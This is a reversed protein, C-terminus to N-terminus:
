RETKNMVTQRGTLSGALHSLPGLPECVSAAVVAWLPADEATLDNMTAFDRNARMECLAEAVLMSTWLVTTPWGGLLSIMTGPLRGMWASQQHVLRAVSWITQTTTLSRGLRGAERVSSHWDAQAAAWTKTQTIRQRLSSPGDAVDVTPVVEVPIAALHLAQGMVLDDILPQEPFSWNTIFDIEFFEGHGVIYGFRPRSSKRFKDNSHLQRPIEVQLQRATHHLSFAKAWPNDSRPARYVSFAQMVRPRSRTAVHAATKLLDRQPRSDADLVLAYTLDAAPMRDLIPHLHRLAFNLQQAKRSSHTALHLPTIPVSTQNDSIWKQIVDSTSPSSEEKATVPVIVYRDSDYDLDSLHSLLGDVQSQERLLPLLIVFNVSLTDSAEEDATLRAQRYWDSANRSSRVKALTAGALLLSPVIALGSLRNM